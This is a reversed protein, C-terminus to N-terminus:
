LVMLSTRTLHYPTCVDHRQVTVTSRHQSPPAQVVALLNELVSFARFPCPNERFLFHPAVHPPEIM